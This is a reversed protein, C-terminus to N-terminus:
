TFITPPPGLQPPHRLAVGLLILTKNSAPILVTANSVGHWVGAGLVITHRPAERAARRSSRDVAVNLARADSSACASLTAKNAPGKETVSM